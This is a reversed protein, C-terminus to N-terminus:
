RLAMMLINKQVFGNNVRNKLYHFCYKNIPMRTHTGENGEEAAQGPTQPQSLSTGGAEGVANLRGHWRLLFIYCHHMFYLQKSGM